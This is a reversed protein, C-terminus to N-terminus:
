SRRVEQKELDSKAKNDLQRSLSLKQRKGFGILAVTALAAGFVAFPFAGPEDIEIPETPNAPVPTHPQDVSKAPEIILKAGPGSLRIEGTVSLAAAPEVHGVSFISFKGNTVVNDKIAGSKTKLDDTGIDIRRGDHSM